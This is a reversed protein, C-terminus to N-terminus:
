VSSQLNTINQPRRQLNLDNLKPSNVYVSKRQQLQDFLNTLQSNNTNLSPSDANSGVFFTSDIYKSNIENNQGRNALNLYAKPTICPCGVGGEGNACTYGSSVYPGGVSRTAMALQIESSTLGDLSGSWEDACCEPSCKLTDITLDKIDDSQPVYYDDLQPLSFHNSDRLNPNFTEPKIYLRNNSNNSVSSVFLCFIILFVLCILIVCFVKEM